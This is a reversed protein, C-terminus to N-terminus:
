LVLIRWELTDTWQVKTNTQALILRRISTARRFPPDFQIAQYTGYHTAARKKVPEELRM